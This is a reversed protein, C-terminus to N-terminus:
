TLPKASKDSLQAAESELELRAGRVVASLTKQYRRLECGSTAIPGASAQRLEQAAARELPALTRFLDAQVLVVLAM